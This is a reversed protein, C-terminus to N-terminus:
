SDQKSSQLGSHICSLYAEGFEWAVGTEGEELLAYVAGVATGPPVDISYLRRGYSGGEEYTCGLAELRPWRKAFALAQKDSTVLLRYTSHGGRRVVRTFTLIDTDVGAEVVDRYSVGYVYFPSNELEFGGDVAQCHMTEVVEGRSMSAPFLVKM